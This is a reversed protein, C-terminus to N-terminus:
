FSWPINKPSCHTAKLMATEWYKSKEAIMDVKQGKGQSAAIKGEVSICASTTLRKLLSPETNEFDVVVQINEISSGDNLAIFQNNRFTRVWGKITVKKDLFDGSLLEKIKTRAM